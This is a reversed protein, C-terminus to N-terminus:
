ALGTPLTVSYVGSPKKRFVVGMKDLIYKADARNMGMIGALQDYYSAPSVAYDFENVFDLAQKPPKYEATTGAM